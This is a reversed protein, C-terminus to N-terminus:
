KKIFELEIDKGTIFLKNNETYIRTAGALDDIFNTEKKMDDEPGAMMTSGLNKVKITTGKIECKGFYNNVGAFGYIDGKEFIVTQSNDKLKYEKGYEIEAKKGCGVLAGLLLTGIIFKKM